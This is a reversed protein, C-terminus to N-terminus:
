DATIQKRCMYLTLYLNKTMEVLEPNKYLKKNRLKELMSMPQQLYHEYTMLDLHTMFTINRELKHSFGLRKDKGISGLLLRNSYMKKSTVCKITDIFQLKRECIIKFYEYKRKYIIVHRQLLNEIEDVKPNKVCLKNIIPESLHKM